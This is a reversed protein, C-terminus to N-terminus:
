MTERDAFGQGPLNQVNGGSVSGGTEPVSGSHDPPAEGANEGRGTAAAITGAVTEVSERAAQGVTSAVTGAADAVPALAEGVSGAVAGLKTGAEQAVEKAKEVLGGPRPQRPEADDARPAGGPGHEDAM